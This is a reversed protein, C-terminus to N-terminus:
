ESAYPVFIHESSFEIPSPYECSYVVEVNSIIESNGTKVYFGPPIPQHIITIIETYEISEYFESIETETTNEIETQETEYAIKIIETDTFIYYDEITSEFKIFDTYESSVMHYNINEEVYVHGETETLTPSHYLPNPIVSGKPVTYFDEDTRLYVELSIDIETESFEASEINYNLYNDITVPKKVDREPPTGLKYLQVGAMDAIPKYYGKPISIKETESGEESKMTVKIESYAYPIKVETKYEGSLEYYTKIQGASQTFYEDDLEAFPKSVNITTDVEASTITKETFNKITVAGESSITSPNTYVVNDLPSAGDKLTYTNSNYPIEVKVGKITTTIETSKYQTGTFSVTVERSYPTDSKEYYTKIVADEDKIYYDDPLSVEISEAYGTITSGAYAYSEYSYSVCVPISDGEISDDIVKFTKESAEILGYLESYTITIYQTTHTCDDEKSITITKLGPAPVVWETLTETPFKSIPVDVKTYVYKTGDEIYYSEVSGTPTVEVLINNVTLTDPAKVYSDVIEKEEYEYDDFTGKQTLRQNEIETFARVSCEVDTESTLSGTLATYPNEVSTYHYTTYTGSPFTKDYVSELESYVEKSIEYSFEINGTAPEYNYVGEAPVYNPINIETSVIVSNDTIETETFYHDPKYTVYDWTSDVETTCPLDVETYVTETLRAEPFVETIFESKIGVYNKITYKTEYPVTYVQTPTFDLTYYKYTEYSADYHEGSKESTMEYDVKDYPVLISYIKSYSPRVIEASKIYHYKHTIDVDWSIIEHSPWYEIRHLVYDYPPIEGVAPEYTDIKDFSVDLDAYCWYRYLYNYNYNYNHYYHFTQPIDCTTLVQCWTPNIADLNRSVMVRRTREDFWIGNVIKGDADDPNNTIYKTRIVSTNIDNHFDM